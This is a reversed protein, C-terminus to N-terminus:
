TTRDAEVARKRCNARGGDLIRTVLDLYIERQHPWRYPESVETARKVLRAGLEPNFYLKRIADALDQVDKSEFMIFCSEDFYAEVSDTRSIIVPRKMSILDFMKNCHTLDRFRDRKIAVVGVDANAIADLLQPMPVWTGAFYVKEAVGLETALGRLEELQSGSGYIELRLVPLEDRLLAVARIITDLGYLPEVSGHCILTFQGPRRSQPPHKQPDFISENAANLVVGIKDRSAGRSAFATRMQETCTFALDAFRISRQELWAMLRVGVYDPSKGYKTVFFEPMCEHLDLMVRAGLLKPILAAFVLPDPLSHVQVLQYPRRLHLAGILFSASLFFSGYALMYSLAGGSAKPLPIRYITVGGLRERFPQEGSGLCIVDVDHGALVLADVEREVRPDHPYYGQRIVGVRPLRDESCAMM